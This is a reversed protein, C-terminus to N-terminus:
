KYCEEQYKNKYHKIEECLENFPGFHSLKSSFPQFISNFLKEYIQSPQNLKEEIFNLYADLM